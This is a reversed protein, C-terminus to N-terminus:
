RPMLVPSWGDIECSENCVWVCDRAAVDDHANPLCQDYCLKRCTPADSSTTGADSALAPFNAPDLPEAKAVCGFLILGFGIVFPPGILMGLATKFLGAEAVAAVMPIWVLVVTTILIALGAIQPNTM